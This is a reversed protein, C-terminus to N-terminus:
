GGLRHNTLPVSKMASRLSLYAVSLLFYRRSDSTVEPAVYRSKPMGTVTVLLSWAPLATRASM